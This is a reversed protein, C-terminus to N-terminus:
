SELVRPNTKARQARASGDRRRQSASRSRWADAPLRRVHVALAPANLPALICVCPIPQELVMVVGLAQEVSRQHSRRAKYFVRSSSPSRGLTTSMSWAGPGTPADRNSIPDSQGSLRM